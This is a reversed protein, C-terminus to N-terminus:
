AGAGPQVLKFITFGIAGAVLLGIVVYGLIVGALAMGRGGLPRRTRRSSRIQSLAVHGFVVALVCGVLSIGLVLSAIALPATAAPQDLEPEEAEDTVSRRSEPAPQVPRRPLLDPVQRAEGWQPWDETWVLTEAGIEGSAAFSRLEALSVPGCERDARVYWWGPAGGGPRQELPIAAGAGGAQEGSPGEVLDVAEAPQGASDAAETGPRRRRRETSQPFLEPFSAAPSWSQRDTSIQYHRGFRQRRARRRLEDATFPGEVVGRLRTYFQDSV